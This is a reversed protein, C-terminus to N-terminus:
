PLAVITGRETGSRDESTCVSGIRQSAGPGFLGKATLCFRGLRDSVVRGAVLENSATLGACRTGVPLSAGPGFLGAPTACHRGPEFRDVLQALDESAINRYARYRTDTELPVPPGAYIPPTGGLVRRAEEESDDAIMPSVALLLAAFAVVLPCVRALTV